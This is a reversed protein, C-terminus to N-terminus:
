ATITGRGAIYDNQKRAHQYHLDHSLQELLLRKQNSSKPWHHLPNLPIPFNASVGFHANNDM